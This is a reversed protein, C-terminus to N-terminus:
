KKINVLFEKFVSVGLRIIQWIRIKVAIDLQIQFEESIFDTIVIVSNRKYKIKKVNEEIFELLYAVGQSVLGYMLAASAADNGAVKIRLAKVDIRLYKKFYYFVKGIIQKAAAIIDMVDDFSTKKDEKPKEKPVPKDSKVKKKKDKQKSKPKEPPSPVLTFKLFLIRLFVKLNGDIYVLQIKAYLNFLLFLVTFIIALIIWGM